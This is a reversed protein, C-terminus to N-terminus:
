PTTPRTEIRIVAPAVVPLYRAGPALDGAIRARGEIVIQRIPREVSRLNLRYITPVGIADRRAVGVLEGREDFGYLIYTVDAGGPYWLDLNVEATNRTFNAVGIADGVLQNEASDATLVHNPANNAGRVPPPYVVPRLLTLSNGAPVRPQCDIVDGRPPPTLVFATPAAPAAPTTTTPTFPVLTSTSTSTPTDTPIPTPSPQDDNVIVGSGVPTRVPLDFFTNSRFQQGNELILLVTEDPEAVTDGFIPVSVRVTRVPPLATTRGPFQLSQTVTLYDNISSASGDQTRVTVRGSAFDDGGDGDSEPVFVVDFILTNQGPANGEPSSITVPNIYFGPPPPVPTLMPTVTGAQQLVPVGRPLSFMTIGGGGSTQQVQYLCLLASQALYEDGRLPFRQTVPIGLVRDFVIAAGAALPTAPPSPTPAALATQTAHLAQVTQTAAFGGAQETLAQAAATQQAAAVVAQATGTQQQAAAQATGTQLVQQAQATGTQQQAATQATGTQAMQQAVASQTAVGAGQVATMTQAVQEQVASATAAQDVALAGLTATIDATPALTPLPMATPLAALTPTPTPCVLPVDRGGACVTAQIQNRRAYALSACSLLFLLLGLLIAGPVVCGRFLPRQSFRAQTEAPPLPMLEALEDAPEAGARFSFLQPAAGILRARVVRATLQVTRVDGADVAILGPPRVSFRLAQEDHVALTAFLRERNGTNAIRLAYQASRWATRQVPEIMVQFADFPLVQLTADAVVESEPRSVMAVAVLIPYSGALSEPSRPPSIRIEASRSDSPLLNIPVGGPLIVDVWSAPIGDVTIQIQDVIQSRNIITIAFRTEQGPDVALDTESLTIALEAPPPPMQPTTPVLQTPADPSVPTGFAPTARSRIMAADPTQGLLGALLDDAPAAAPTLTVTITTGGIRLVSGNRLLASGGIPQNDLLTAGHALDEITSTRGDSVIRAQIPLAALDDLVVECSPDRGIRLQATLAVTQRRRDASIITLRGFSM